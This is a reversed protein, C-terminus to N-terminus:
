LVFVGGLGGFACFCGSLWAVWVDMSLFVM